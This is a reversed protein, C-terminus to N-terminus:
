SKQQQQQKITHDDRKCSSYNQLDKCWLGLSVKYQVAGERFELLLLGICRHDVQWGDCCQCLLLTESELGCLLLKVEIRCSRDRLFGHGGDAMNWASLLRNKPLTSSTVGSSFPGFGQTVSASSSPHSRTLRGSPAVASALGMSSRRMSCGLMDTYTEGPGRGAMSSLAVLRAPLMLLIDSDANGATVLLLKGVRTVRPAAACAPARALTM